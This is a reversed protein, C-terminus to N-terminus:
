GPKELFEGAAAHAQMLAEVRRRMEADAGCQETLWADRATHDQIELAALFIDRENM